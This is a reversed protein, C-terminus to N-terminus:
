QPKGKKTEPFQIAYLAAVDRETSLRWQRLQERLDNLQTRLTDAEHRYRKDSDALLQVLDSLKDLRDEVDPATASVFQIREREPEPANPQPAPQPQPAPPTGWRVVFQHGECRVELSPLIAFLVLAAALGAFAVAARRWRRSGREEAQAAARYLRPLDVEATAPPVADLAQRVQKLADLERRCDACGALHAEVQAVADPAVGGYLLEPLVERTQPCNM